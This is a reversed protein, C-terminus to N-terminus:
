GVKRQHEQWEEQQKREFEMQARIEALKAILQDLEEENLAISQQSLGTLGGFHEVTLEVDVTDMGDFAFELKRRVGPEYHAVEASRMGTRFKREGM